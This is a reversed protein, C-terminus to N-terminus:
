PTYTGSIVYGFITFQALPKGFAGGSVGNRIIKSYLDGGLTIHVPASTHFHEDALQLGPFEEVIRVDVSKKPTVVVHNRRVEAYTEVTTSMGFNGRLQLLCRNKNGVRVVRQGMRQVLSEAVISSEISPDLVAREHIYRDGCIIKVVATAKLLITERLSYTPILETSKEKRRYSKSKRGNYPVMENSSEKSSKTSSAHKFAHSSSPGKQKSAQSSSPGKQSANKSSSPGNHSPEPKDSSNSSRPGKKPQSRSSSPGKEDAGKKVLDKSSSPGPKHLLTHHTDGCKKCEGKSTCTRWTHDHGLCGACHQYISVMKMREAYEMSLFKKCFRLPHDNLCVRCVIRKKSVRNEANYKKAKVM